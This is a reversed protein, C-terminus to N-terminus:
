GELLTKCEEITMEHLPKGIANELHENLQVINLGSKKLIEEKLNFLEKRHEDVGDPKEEPMMNNVVNEHQKDLEDPTYEKLEEATHCGSFIEPFASRCCKSDARHLLMNDKDNKWQDSSPINNKSMALEHAREFVKEKGNKLKRTIKVTCKRNKLGCVDGPLDEWIVDYDIFDPQSFVVGKMSDSSTSPKGKVVYVNQLCMFPDKFGLAQGYQFAVVINAPKNRYAPPVLESQSFESALALKGNLSKPINSTDALEALALKNRELSLEQKELKILEQKQEIVEQTIVESM